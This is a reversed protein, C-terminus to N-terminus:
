IELILLMQGYCIIRKVYSNTPNMLIKDHIKWKHKHSINAWIKEQLIKVM